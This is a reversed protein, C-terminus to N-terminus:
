KAELKKKLDEVEKKLEIMKMERGVMLANIKEIEDFKKQLEDKAKKIEEEAQKRATIDIITGELIGEETYLKVSTLCYIIDGKKTKMRCEFDSVNGEKKLIELLRARELPDVWYNVSPSSLMEERSYGFIALYKDNFELIESGDMKTRFIGIEANNFLLRYKEESKALKEEAKVKQTVDDKVAIFNTVSIGDTSVPTITMEENYFTGDKRRNVLNSSWVQNNKITRWMNEYFKQEQSGSRLFRPNKGIIEESTYGTLRTIAPNAWIIKGDSDTIIIGNAATKLATSQLIFEKQSNDDDAAKVERATVTNQDNHDMKKGWKM